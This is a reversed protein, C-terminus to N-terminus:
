SNEMQYAYDYRIKSPVVSGIEKDYYSSSIRGLRIENRHCLFTISDVIAHWLIIFPWELHYYM